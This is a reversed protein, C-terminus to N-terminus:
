RLVTFSARYRWGPGDIGIPELYVDANGALRHELRYIAAPLAPRAPGVFTITFQKTARGEKRASGEAQKEPEQVEVLDLIVVGHESNIYFSQHLLAEFKAQSPGAALGAEGANGLNTDDAKINAAPLAAISLLGGAGLLLARIRKM